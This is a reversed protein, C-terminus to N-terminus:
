PVGSGAQVAQLRLRVRAKLAEAIANEPRLCFPPKEKTPHHACCAVCEGHRECDAKTCPCEDEKLLSLM